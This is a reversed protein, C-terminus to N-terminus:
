IEGKGCENKKKEKTYAKPTYTTLIGDEAPSIYIYIYQKQKLKALQSTTCM